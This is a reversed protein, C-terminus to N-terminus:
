EARRARELVEALTVPRPQGPVAHVGPEGEAAARLLGWAFAAGSLAILVLGLAWRGILWGGELAGLAGLICAAAASLRVPIM